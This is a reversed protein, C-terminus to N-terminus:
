WLDALSKIVSHYREYKQEYINKRTPDPDQRRAIRTMAGVAEEYSSFCGAAVGAAIAAGLAGLETGAPIEIPIQFCDAFMQVWVKSKAAGGTFRIVDPTERFNLLRQLHTNHGFIIGEFISRIVHARTHYGELGVFCSKTGAGVNSGYLFPMFTITTAEPTVSGALEDCFAFVSKGDAKLTKNEQAMFQDVFWELNSASTPSGELMLYWGPISYCSTMFLDKDILPEKAIYQNNGWTGAVLSMQGEDIIGSSLGCADIDFMGGAVPTGEKLGTETAAKATVKGCVDHTKIIPPLMSKFESIGFLKLVRDDYEGTVVNMLSTGSMDTLEANVEGCLKYRIWDKSMLIWKAKDMTAPENDRLWALLANPQAPWLCQTTLPLVKADIGDDLWSEVYSQARGDSSNIANRVPNGDADILHLGNGFGCCAVGAIESADIGSKDIVERIAEAIGKWNENMDRENHGPKPLILNVKRSATAIEKGELTFLAAKGMTGGNDIGM